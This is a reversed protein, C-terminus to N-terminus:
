HPCKCSPMQASSEGTKRLENEKQIARQVAEPDTEGGATNIKMGGREVLAKYIEYWGEDCVM